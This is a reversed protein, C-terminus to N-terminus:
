LETVSLLRVPVTSDVQRKGVLSVEDGQPIPHRQHTLTPSHPVEWAELNWVSM